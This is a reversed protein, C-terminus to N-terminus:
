ASRGAVKGARGARGLLAAKLEDLTTAAALATDLEVQPDPPAAPPDPPPIFAAGDWTGGKRATGDDAVLVCGAPPAYPTADPNPEDPLVIINEVSGTAEVIQAKRM